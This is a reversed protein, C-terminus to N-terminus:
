PTETKIAPNSKRDLRACIEAAAGHHRPLLKKDVATNSHIQLWEEIAWKGCSAFNGDRRSRCRKARGCGVRNAAVIPKDQICTQTISIRQMFKARQSDVEATGKVPNRLEPGASSFVLFDLLNLIDLMVM